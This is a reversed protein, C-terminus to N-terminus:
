LKRAPRSLTPSSTRVISHALGVEGGNEPPTASAGDSSSAPPAVVNPSAALPAGGNNAEAMVGTASLEALSRAVEFPEGCPEQADIAVGLPLEDPLRGYSSSWPGSPIAPYDTAADSGAVYDRASARGELDNSLRSMAHLTTPEHQGPGPKSQQESRLVDRRLTQEAKASPGSM